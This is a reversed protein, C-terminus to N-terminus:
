FRTFRAHNKWWREGLYERWGVYTSCCRVKITKIKDSALILIVTLIKMKDTGRVAITSSVGVFIVQSLQM